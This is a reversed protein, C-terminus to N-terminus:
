DAAASLSSAGAACRICLRAWPLARMRAAGIPQECRECQGYEGKKVRELALRVEDLERRERNITALALDSAFNSTALAAEDDPERNVVVEGLHESLRQSLEHEKAKLMKVVDSKSRSSEANSPRAKKM